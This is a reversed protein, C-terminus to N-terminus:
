DNNLLELFKYKKEDKSLTNQFFEIINDTDSKLLILDKKYSIIQNNYIKKSRYSNKKNDNSFYHNSIMFIFCLISVIFLLYKLEKYM